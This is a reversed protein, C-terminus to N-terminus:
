IIAWLGNYSTSGCIRLDLKSLQNNDQLAVGLLTASTNDLIVTEDMDTLRPDNNRLMQCLRNLVPSM